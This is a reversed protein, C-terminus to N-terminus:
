GKKSKQSKKIIHSNYRKIGSRSVLIIAIIFLLIVGILKWPIVWFAMQATMVQGTSGYGLSVDASYRGFLWKKNLEQEFRRISNPLVNKPPDNVKLSAITKGFMDRVVVTGAPKIHINGTNKIREVLNIPGYEFFSAKKGNQSTFFEEVRASEKVDGSVRVLVLTGISASLAVASQDSELEPAVGTFRIVGYHGGPEANTPVNIKVSITKTEQSKFQGGGIQGVWSKLSYTSHADDDLLIEPDGNEGKAIFDNVQGKAVLPGATVNKLKLDITYSKGPDANLEVTVPSIQFGQGSNSVSQASSSVPQLLFSFLTVALLIISCYVFSKKM